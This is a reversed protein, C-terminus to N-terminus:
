NILNWWSIRKRERKEAAVVKIKINFMWKCRETKKHKTTYIKENGNM